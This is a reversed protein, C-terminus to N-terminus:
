SHFCGCAICGGDNNNDRTHCATIEITANILYLASPHPLHFLLFFSTAAVSRIYLVFTIVPNSHLLDGIDENKFAGYSRGVKEEGFM